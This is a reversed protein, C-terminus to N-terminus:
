SSRATRCSCRSGAAEAMVASTMTTDYAPNAEGSTTSMVNTADKHQASLMAANARRTGQGYSSGWGSVSWIRRRGALAAPAATVHQRDDRIGDRLQHHSM